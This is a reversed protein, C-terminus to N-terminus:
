TLICREPTMLEKVKHEFQDQLFRWAKPYVESFLIRAALAIFGDLEKQSGVLEAHDEVQWDILFNRESMTGDPVGETLWPEHAYEDNLSRMLYDLCYLIRGREIQRMHCLDSMAQEEAKGEEGGESGKGVQDTQEGRAEEQVGHVCKCRVCRRGDDNPKGLKERRVRLNGDNYDVCENKAIREDILKLATYAIACNQTFMSYPTRGKKKVLEEFVGNCKEWFEDASIMRMRRERASM